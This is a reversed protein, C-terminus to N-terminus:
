VAFDGAPSFPASDAQLQTKCAPYGEKLHVNGWVEPAQVVSQYYEKPTMTNGSEKGAQGSNMRKQAQGVVRLVM